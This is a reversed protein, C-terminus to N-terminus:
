GKKEDQNDAGNRLLELRDLAKPLIRDDCSCSFQEISTEVGKFVRAVHALVAASEVPKAQNRTFFRDELIRVCELQWQPTRWPESGDTDLYLATECTSGGVLFLNTIPSETHGLGLLARKSEFKQLMSLTDTHCHLLFNMRNGAQQRNTVAGHTSCLDGNKCHEDFAKQNLKSLSKVVNVLTPAKTGLIGRGKPSWRWARLSVSSRLLPAERRRM